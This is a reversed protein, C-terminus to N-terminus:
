VTTTTIFDFDGSMPITEWKSSSTKYALTNGDSLITTSVDLLAITKLLTTNLRGLNSTHSANWNADGPDNYILGSEPLTHDSM